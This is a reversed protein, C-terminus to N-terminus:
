NDRPKLDKMIYLSKSEKHSHGVPYIYRDISTVM